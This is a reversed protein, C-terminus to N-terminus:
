IQKEVNRLPYQIRIIRSLVVPKKEELQQLFTQFTLDTMQFRHMCAEIDFPNMLLTSAHRVPPDEVDPEEPERLEVIIEVVVRILDRESPMIEKLVDLCREILGPPLEPHALM